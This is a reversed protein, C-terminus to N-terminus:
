SVGHGLRITINILVKRNALTKIMYPFLISKWARFTGNLIAYLLDQGISLRLRNVREYSQLSVKSSLFSNWFISLYEDLEINETKLDDTQPPWQMKCDMNRVQARITSAATLISKKDSTMKQVRELEIKKEYLRKVTVSTSLSKRFLLVRNNVTVFNIGGIESEIKRCLLMRKILITCVKLQRTLLIPFNLSTLIKM